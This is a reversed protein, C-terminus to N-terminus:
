APNLRAPCRAHLDVGGMVRRQVAPDGGRVVLARVERYLVQGEATGGRRIAPATACRRPSRRGPAPGAAARSCPRHDASTAPASAGSAAPSRFVNIAAPEAARRATRAARDCASACPLGCCCASAEQRTGCAPTSSVTGQACRRSCRSRCRCGGRWWPPCATGARCGAAAWSCTPASRSDRGCNTWRPSRGGPAGAAPGSWPRPRAAAQTRGWGAAPSRLPARSGPRAGAIREALRDRM